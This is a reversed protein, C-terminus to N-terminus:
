TFDRPFVSPFARNRLTIMETLKNFCRDSVLMAWKIGMKKLWGVHFFKLSELWEYGKSAQAGREAQQAKPSRWEL